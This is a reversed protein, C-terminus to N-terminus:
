RTSLTTPQSGFEQFGFLSQLSVSPKLDFPTSILNVSGGIAPPGYFASGAGRQVQVSGTSGLLDPFDIWYVNHDEPDNQPVGNIMVSLRRQDFGRLNVYNYGIGNGNESYFTMSPLDSLLVPIDQVSYRESLQAQTLTSFTVPTERERAQTATVIVAPLYSYVSDRTVLLTDQAPLPPALAGLSLVLTLYKM